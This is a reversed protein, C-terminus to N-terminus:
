FDKKEGTFPYTIVAFGNDELQEEVSDLNIKRAVDRYNIVDTKINLPLDYSVAQATYNLEELSYYDAFLKREKPTVEIGTTGDGVPFKDQSFPFHSNINVNQNTNIEININQNDNPKEKLKKIIFGGLVSGLVIILLGLGSIIM